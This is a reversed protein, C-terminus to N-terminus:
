KVRLIRSLITKRVREKAMIIIRVAQNGAKKQLIKYFYWITTFYSRLYRDSQSAGGRSFRSQEVMNSIESLRQKKKLKENELTEVDDTMRKSTSASTRSKGNPNSPDFYFSSLRDPAITQYNLKKIQNKTM